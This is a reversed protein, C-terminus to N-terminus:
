CKYINSEKVEMIFQNHNVYVKGIDNNIYLNSLRLSSGLLNNNIDLGFKNKILYEIDEIEVTLLKGIVHELFSSCKNSQNLGCFVKKDGIMFSNFFESCTLIDEYFCDEFGYDLLTDMGMDEKISQITFYEETYKEYINNVFSEIAKNAVGKRYLRDKHVFVYRQIRIVPIVKIIEDVVEEYNALNLLQPNVKELDVIEESLLIAEIYSSISEYKKSYVYNISYNYGVMDINLANIYKEDELGLVSLFVRKFDEIFYFEKVLYQKLKECQHQDLRNIGLGNNAYRIAVSANEIQKLVYDNNLWFCQKTMWEGNPLEDGDKKIDGSQYGNHLSYAAKNAKPRLHIIETQSKKPLNNSVSNNKVKFEIGKRITDQINEWENMVTINLDSSPMSWFTSGLFSYGFDMEKYVIFLFKTKKFYNYIYSENWNEEILELFKITPFSMSEKITGRNNIRITKIVINEEKLDQLRNSTVGAMRYAIEVLTSKTSTKIIGFRKKLQTDNEGVYASLNNILYNEM